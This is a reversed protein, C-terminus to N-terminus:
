RIPQVLIAVNLLLTYERLNQMAADANAFSVQTMIQCLACCSEVEPLHNNPVHLDVLCALFLFGTLDDM